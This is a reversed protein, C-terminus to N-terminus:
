RPTKDITFMYAVTDIMSGTKLAQNSQELTYGLSEAIKFPNNSGRMILRIPDYGFSIILKGGHKLLKFSSKLLNERNKPGNEPADWVSIVFIADYSNKPLFLQDLTGHKYNPHSINEPANLTFFMKHNELSELSIDVVDVKAGKLTSFLAIDYLLNPGIDIVRSGQGLNAQQVIKLSLANEQNEVYQALEKCEIAYTNFTIALLCLITGFYKAKLLSSPWLSTIM